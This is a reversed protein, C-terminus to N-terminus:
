TVPRDPVTLIRDNDVEAGWFPNDIAVRRCGTAVQLCSTAPMVRMRDGAGLHPTGTSWPLTTLSLHPGGTRARGAAESDRSRSRSRKWRSAEASIALFVKGLGGVLMIGVRDPVEGVCRTNNSGSRTLVATITAAYRFFM